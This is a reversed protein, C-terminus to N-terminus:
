YKVRKIIYRKWMFYDIQSRNIESKYTIYHEERTRSYSNIIALEYASAYDLAKKGAENKEGYGYRAHLKEYEVRESCVHRNMDDV